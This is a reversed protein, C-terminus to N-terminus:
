DSGRLLSDSVDKTPASVLGAILPRLDSQSWRPSLRQQVIPGEKSATVDVRVAAVLISGDKSDPRIEVAIVQAAGTMRGFREASYTNGTEGSAMCIPRPAHIRRDFRLDIGVRTEEKLQVLRSLSDTGGMGVQVRYSGLAFTGSFPTRGVEFGDLFVAAGSPESIVSLWGRPAKSLAQRVREFEQRVSDAYYDPDMQYKPELRLVRKFAEAMETRQRAERLALGSLLEVRTKLSHRPAGPSIGNLEERVVDLDKLAELNKGALYSREASELRSNVDHLSRARSGVKRGIEDADLLAVGPAQARLEAAFADRIAHLKADRCDGIALVSVPSPTWGGTATLALMLVHLVM